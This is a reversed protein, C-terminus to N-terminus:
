CGQSHQISLRVFRGLAADWIFHHVFQNNYHPWHEIQIAPEGQLKDIQLKFGGDLAGILGIVQTMGRFSVRVTAVPSRAPEDSGSAFKGTPLFDISVRMREGDLMLVSDHLNVPLDKADAAALAQNFAAEDLSVAAVGFRGQPRARTQAAEQEHSAYGDVGSSFVKHPHDGDLVVRAATGRVHWVYQQQGTLLTQRILLDLGTGPTVEGAWVLEQRSYPEGPSLMPLERREGKPSTVVLNLSGARIAGDARRQVTTALQWERGAVKVTKRFRDHLLEPGPGQMLSAHRGPQLLATEQGAAERVLRASFLTGDPVALAHRPALASPPQEAPISYVETKRTVPVRTKTVAQLVLQGEQLSVAMWPIPLKMPPAPPKMGEAPQPVDLDEDPGLLTLRTVGDDMALARAPAPALGGWLSLGFVLLAALGQRAGRWALSPLLREHTLPRMTM